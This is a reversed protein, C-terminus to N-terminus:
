ADPSADLHLRLERSRPVPVPLSRIAEGVDIETVSPLPATDDLWLRLESFSDPQLPRAKPGMEWGRTRNGCDACEMFVRGDLSRLRYSHRRKIICTLRVFMTM